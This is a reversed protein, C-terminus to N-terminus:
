GAALNRGALPPALAAAARSARRLGERANTVLRRRRSVQREPSTASGPFHWLKCELEHFQLAGDVRRWLDADRVATLQGFREWRWDNNRWEQLGRRLGRNVYRSRTVLTVKSRGDLAELGRVVALLETRERGGVEECDSASFTHGDAMNQLSFRWSYRVADHITSESDQIACAEAFLLYHQSCAGAM